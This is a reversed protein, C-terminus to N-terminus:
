PQRLLNWFRRSHVDIRRRSGVSFVAQLDAVPERSLRDAWVNTIGPIWGLAIFESNSVSDLALEQLVAALPYSRAYWKGVVHTCVM